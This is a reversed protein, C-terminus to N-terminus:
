PSMTVQTVVFKDHGNDDCDYDCNQDDDGNYDGNIDDDYDDGIDSCVLLSSAQAQKSLGRTGPDHSFSFM